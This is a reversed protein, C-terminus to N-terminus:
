YDSQTTTYHNYRTTYGSYVIISLYSVKIMIYHNYQVLQPGSLDDSRTTESYHSRTVCHIYESYVEYLRKTHHNIPATVKYTHLPQTTPNYVCLPKANGEYIHDSYPEVFHNCLLPITCLSWLCM